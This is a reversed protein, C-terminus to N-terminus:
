TEKPELDFRRTSPPPRMAITTTEHTYEGTHINLSWREQRREARRVLQSLLVCHVRRRANRHSTSHESAINEQLSPLFNEGAMAHARKLDDSPLRGHCDQISRMSWHRLSKFFRILLFIKTNEPSRRLLHQFEPSIEGTNTFKSLNKSVNLRFQSIQLALMKGRSVHPSDNCTAAFLFSM